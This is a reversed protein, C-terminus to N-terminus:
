TSSTRAAAHFRHLIRSESRGYSTSTCRTCGEDTPVFGDAIRAARRAAAHSSGGLLLAPGGTQYPQPTIVPRGQYSFEEGAWARRLVAIGEEVQRGRTSRDKGFLAFESERYGAGIVLEIRGASVLDLAAVDEAMRVPDYLPLLLAMTRLRVRRTRGAIAALATLPSPCYGDESGHHESVRIVDVGHADAWASMDLM